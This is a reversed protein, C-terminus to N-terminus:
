EELKIHRLVHAQARAPGLPFLRVQLDVHEEVAM